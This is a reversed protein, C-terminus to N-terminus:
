EQPNEERDQGESERGTVCTGEGIRSFGCEKRASPKQMKQSVRGASEQERNSMYPPRGQSYWVLDVSDPARDSM